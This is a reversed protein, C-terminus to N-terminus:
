TTAKKNKLYGIIAPMTSIIIIGVIVLEINKKVVPLNGFYFGLSTLSTVWIIGGLLSYSLFKKFPMEGIGAVFPSFTRVIPVFRAFIVTKAGYKEYFAHANELNKKSFWISEEKNFVKHGLTRGVTYNIMDGLFAAGILLPIIIKPDIAGRAGIAGVAFLLSDGPLFPMIIFGTEIFIILFLIVYVWSNYNQIIFDLHADIHIMYDILTKILEM